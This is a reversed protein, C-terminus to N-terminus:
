PQKGQEVLAPWPLSYQITSAPPRFTSTDPRALGSGPSSVNDCAAGYVRALAARLLKLDRKLAIKGLLDLHVKVDAESQCDEGRLLRDLTGSSSVFALEARKSPEGFDGVIKGDAFGLYCHLGRDAITYELLLRHKSLLSTLAHDAAGLKLFERLAPEFAAAAQAVRGESAQTQRLLPIATTQLNASHARCFAALVTFLVFFTKM